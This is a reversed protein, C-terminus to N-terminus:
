SWRNNVKSWAYLVDLHHDRQAEEMLNWMDRFEDLKLRFKVRPMCPQKFYM